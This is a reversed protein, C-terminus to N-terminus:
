QSEALVYKALVDTEINVKDGQKKRGLTTVKRTFPILYVSFYTGTVEGVTLSVGDICVSGKPVIYKKIGENISIRFEEYNEQSVINKITSVTDVHGTVFHGDLRGGVELARELNVSQQDALLGLTTKELSERMIDFTLIDGEICTVTLCVGNIAISAGLRIGELIINARVKLVSLNKQSSIAEVTGMEEIIGSFM